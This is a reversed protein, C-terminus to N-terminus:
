TFVDTDNREIRLVMDNERQFSFEEFGFVTLQNRIIPVKGLVREVV